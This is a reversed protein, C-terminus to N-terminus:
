ILSGMYVLGGYSYNQGNDSRQMLAPFASGHIDNTHVIAVTTFQCFTLSLLLTVALIVLHSNM